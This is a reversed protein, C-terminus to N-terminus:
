DADSEEICVVTCARHHEEDLAVSFGNKVGTINTTRLTKTQLRMTALWFLPIM